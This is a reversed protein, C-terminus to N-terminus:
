TLVVGKPEEDAIFKQTGEEDVNGGCGDLVVEVKLLRDCKAQTGGDSIAFDPIASGAVALMGSADNEMWARCVESSELLSASKV